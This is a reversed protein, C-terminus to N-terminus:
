SSFSGLLIKEGFKVKLKEAFEETMEEQLADLGDCRLKLMPKDGGSQALSLRLFFAYQELAAYPKCTFVFGEPLQEGNRAMAEINATSSRGSSFGGEEHSSEATAKIDIKLILQCAKKIDISDGDHGIVEINFQWDQLFNFLDQQTFTKSLNGLLGKSYATTQKLQLIARHDCHGPAELTGMDFVVQAAMNESNVFCHSAATSDQLGCYLEFDDILETKFQGRFANRLPQFEELDVVKYEAPLTKTPYPTVAQLGEHAQVALAAIKKVDETM